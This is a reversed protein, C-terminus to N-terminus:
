KVDTIIYDIVSKCEVGGKQQIRTWKGETEPQINLVDLEYKDIIEKVWKGNGKSEQFQGEQYEVRANLDGAIVTRCQSALCREVEASLDSFFDEKEELNVTEQPGHAVIIRVTDKPYQIEVTAINKLEAEYVLEMTDFTGEKAAVLIGEKGAKLNSKLVKYGKIDFKSNKHLKTECLAVVDPRKMALIHKLSEQKCILGNINNYYLELVKEDNKVANKRKGRRRKKPKVRRTPM